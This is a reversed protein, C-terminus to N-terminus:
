RGGWVLLFFADGASFGGGAVACGVLILKTRLPVKALLPISPVKVRESAKRIGAINLSGSIKPIRASKLVGAIRPVRPIKSILSIMTIKSIGPKKPM